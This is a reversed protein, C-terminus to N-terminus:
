GAKLGPVYVYRGKEEDMIYSLLRRRNEGMGPPVLSVHVWGANPGRKPNYCECIIQDYELNESIWEALEITPMGPIEIDCARGLTHQSKSIWDKRKKKLKRELEQSRYVSNPSLRGYVDRVPQLVKRCLYVAAQLHEISEFSNEINHREATESKVLEYFRFNKSIRDRPATEFTFNEGNGIRLTQWFIM